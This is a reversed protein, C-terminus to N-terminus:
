VNSKGSEIVEKNSDILKYIFQDLDFYLNMNTVQNENVLARHHSLSIIINSKNPNESIGKLIYGNYKQISQGQNADDVVSPETDYWSAKERGGCSTM